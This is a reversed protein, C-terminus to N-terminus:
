KEPPLPEFLYKAIATPAWQGFTQGGSFARGAGKGIAGAAKGARTPTETMPKPIPRKPEPVITNRRLFTSVYHGTESPERSAEEAGSVREGSRM